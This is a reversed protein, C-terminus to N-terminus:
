KRGLLQLIKDQRDGADPAAQLVTIEEITKSPDLVWINDGVTAQQENGEPTLVYHAFLKAANPHAIKEPNIFGLEMQTGTTVPPMFAVVPARGPLAAIAPGSVPGAVVCEGAALASAAAAASEFVKPNNAAVGSLMEEGYEARMRDWVEIYALAVEPNPICVRDKYKPDALAEFSTPVDDGQVLDSNYAMTWPNYAVTATSKNLFEQPYSGDELAPIGAEQIPVMWGKPVFDDTVVQDFTAGLIIDANFSDAELESAFRQLLTGAPLALPQVTIGYKEEFVEALHETGAVPNASYFVLMGEAKAAEVLEAPPESAAVSNSSIAWGLAIAACTALHRKSIQM